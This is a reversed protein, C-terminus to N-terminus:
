RRPGSNRLLHEVTDLQTDWNGPQPQRLLRATPYWPSDDRHLMWRWDSEFPLLIWMPRLLTSALHAVMTDVTIVLDLSAVLKMTDLITGARRPKLRTLDGRITQGETAQELSIWRTGPTAFLAQLRSSLQHVPLERSPNWQGATWKLGITCKRNRRVPTPCPLPLPPPLTDLTARFLYPLESCELCCDNQVHIGSELSVVASIFPLRRLLPLLHEPAQVTIRAHRALPPAFRLFQIGDGLGRRCQILLRRADAPRPCVGLLDSEKWAREFDGLLMWCIWRHQLHHLPDVGADIARLFHDLAQPIERHEYHFLARTTLARADAETGYM